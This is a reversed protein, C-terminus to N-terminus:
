QAWWIIFITGKNLLKVSVSGELSPFLFWILPCCLGLSRPRTIKKGGRGQQLLCWSKEGRGECVSSYTPPLCRSHYGPLTISCCVPWHSCHFSVLLRSTAPSAQLTNSTQFKLQGKHFLSFFPRKKAAMNFQGWLFDLDLNSSLGGERGKEGHM